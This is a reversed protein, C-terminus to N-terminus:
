LLSYLDLFTIRNWEVPPLLDCAIWVVPSCGFFQSLQSCLCVNDLIEQLTLGLELWFECPPFNTAYWLELFWSCKSCWGSLSFISNGLKQVLEGASTVLVCFYFSPSCTCNLSGMSALSVPLLSFSHGTFEPRMWSRSYAVLDTQTYSSVAAHHSM